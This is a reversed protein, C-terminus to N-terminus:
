AGAVELQMQLQENILRNTEQQAKLQDENIKQLSRGSDEGSLLRTFEEGGSRMAGAGIAARSLIGGDFLDEQKQGFQEQTLKKLEEAGVGALIGGRVFTGIQERQRQEAFQGGASGLFADLDGKRRGYFASLQAQETAFKKIEQNLKNQQPILNDIIDAYEDWSIKNEMMKKTADDFMFSIDDMQAGLDGAIGGTGFGSLIERGQQRGLAAMGLTEQSGAFAIDRQASYTAVAEEIFKQDVGMRSRQEQTTGQLANIMSLFGRTGSVDANPDVGTVQTYRGAEVSYRRASMRDRLSEATVFSGRGEGYRMDMAGRVGSLAEQAAGSIAAGRQRAEERAAAIPSRGAGTVADIASKVADASKQRANTLNEEAKALDDAKKTDAEMIDGLSTFNIALQTLATVGVGIALGWPGGLLGAMASINNSAGRVAGSLGGTGLSTVFDDIAFIGQQLAAQGRGGGGLFGGGAVAAARGSIGGGGGRRGGGRSPSGPAGPMGFDQYYYGYDQYNRYSLSAKTRQWKTNVASAQMGALPVFQGSDPGMYRAANAGAAQLGSLPIFSRQMAAVRAADAELKGVPIMTKLAAKADVAAQAIRENAKAVQEAETELQDLMKASQSLWKKDLKENDVAQNQLKQLQKGTLAMQGQIKEYGPTDGAQKLLANFRSQLSGLKNLRELRSREAADSGRGRLRAIDRSVNGQQAVTLGKGSMVGSLEKQARKRISSIERNLERGTKAVTEKVGGTELSMQVAIKQIDVGAM